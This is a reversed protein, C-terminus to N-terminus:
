WARALSQGPARGMSVDYGELARKIVRENAVPDGYLNFTVGGLSRSAAGYNGLRTTGPAAPAARGLGLAGSVIGRVGSPLIGLIASLIRGAMSRIGDIFGQILAQGKGYLRSGLDGIAGAVKGAIGGAFELVNVWIGLYGKVFGTLLEVGKPLLTSALSGIGALIKGPLERVFTVVSTIGSSVAGKVGDWAEVVKTKIADWTQAFWDKLAGWVQTAKTKIGDWAKGLWATITDWNKYLLVGIAILAAIAAIVLLVPGLALTFSTGLLLNVAAVATSVASWIAMAANIALVAGALVAITGGIALLVGTNNAAWDAFSQLPGVLAEFAPLLATGVSESIEGFATSLKQSSTAGAAAVGGVQKELEGMVIAQAGAVDGAEVMAKIQAKQAETFTVGAKGLATVGKVPDQLAKGLMVSASDMSGFGAAALDAALGTAKGMTDASKAVESFTALKTQATKIVDDDVGIQKSLADAYAEAEDALDAYGISEYVETLKASVAAAEEAGKVSVLAAAGVAGLAAAAPAAMKKFAGGVKESATLQRGLANNVNDIDRIASVTQAAIAIVINTASM